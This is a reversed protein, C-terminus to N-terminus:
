NLQQGLLLWSTAFTLVAFQASFRISSGSEGSPGNSPPGNSPPGNTGLVEKCGSIEMEGAACANGGCNGFRDCCGVFNTGCFNYCYECVQGAQLNDATAVTSCMGVNAVKACGPDEPTPTDTAPLSEPFPAVASETCDTGDAYTCTCNQYCVPYCNTFECLNLELEDTTPDDTTMRCFSSHGLTTLTQPLSFSLRKSLHVNRRSNKTSVSLGCPVKLSCLLMEERQLFSRKTSTRFSAAVTAGTRANSPPTPALLFSTSSPFM